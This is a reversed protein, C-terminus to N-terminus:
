EPVMRRAPNGRIRPLSGGDRRWRAVGTPMAIPGAPAVRFAPRATKGHACAKRAM